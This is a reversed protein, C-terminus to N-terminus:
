PGIKSQKPAATNLANSFKADIQNNVNQGARPTIKQGVKLNNSGLESVIPPAAQAQPTSSGTPVVSSTVKNETIFTDEFPSELDEDNDDSVDVLVDSENINPYTLLSTPSASDIISELGSELEVLRNIKPKLAALDSKIAVLEKELRSEEYSEIGKEIKKTSPESISSCASLLTFLACGTFLTKSDQWFCTSRSSTNM